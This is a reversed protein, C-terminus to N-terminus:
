RDFRRAVQRLNFHEPDWTGKWEGIEGPDEGTRAARVCAEYGEYAGCDEPPFARGGGLLRRVFREPITVRRHWVVEHEWGDGFDYLYRCAKARGTGLVSKVQVQRADPPSRRRNPDPIGALPVGKATRFEFQHRNEWGCAIQIAEHLDAFSATATILFRRWITPAIERLIVEVEFYTPM